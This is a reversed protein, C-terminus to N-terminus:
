PEVEFSATFVSPAAFRDTPVTEFLGPFENPRLVGLRRTALATDDNYISLDYAKGLAASYAAVAKEIMPYARDELAMRYLEKQDETLYSPVYSKQLAEAMDEYAQGLRVLAALGTRGAGIGVIATYTKDVEALAKAKAVLQDKLLKNVQKEPLKKDGPGDIKMNSYAQYSPEALTFQIESIYEPTTELQAGAAKAKDYAGLTEKWHAGIKASLGIKDMLLGYRYRCFFIEDQTATAPPKTYYALYVKSAEAWKQNAEYIKGIQINIGNVNPKDPFTTIYQQYDKIAQEWQGMSERFLAASYIADAANPHKNDLAYIKEYYNAAENFDAVSEYDFGLMAIQDKYYKSKPYKGVLELRMKMSDRVSGVDRYYVSANNLAFDGKESAPFEQYFAWYSNAATGKNQDKAFTVEILKLSANEYVGAVEKKFDAGGLGVQDRFAKSVDKLNTWDEVLTFSDLILNAAQEAEKSGPDMAIVRRFRDSAEKFQNKNYLLYASKYISGKVKKGEPYLTTYQDLAALLKGEWETLQVPQTRNGAGATTPGGQKDIVKEAAFVASEACFESRNGKPDTKVVGMYQEYADEHKKVTYLLEAFSYRMEYSYKSEPYEQLYTRYAQEALSDAQMASAGSKLKKAENHYDTAVARLNKDIAESADQIATQNAANAKAWASSKGYTKLMRDIEDITEQKRGM